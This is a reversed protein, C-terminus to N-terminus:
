ALEASLLVRAIRGCGGPAFLSFNVSLRAKKYTVQTDAGRDLLLKIVELSGSYAAWILPTNGGQDKANVNVGSDLAQRVRAADGAKAASHIPPM